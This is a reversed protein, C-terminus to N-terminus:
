FFHIIIHIVYIKLNKQKKFLLNKIFFIRIIVIFCFFIIFTNNKISLSMLFSNEMGIYFLNLILIATIFYNKKKILLNFKITSCIISIFIIIGGIMFLITLIIIWKDNNFILLNMIYFIIFFSFNIVINIPNFNRIIIFIFLIIKLNLFYNQM